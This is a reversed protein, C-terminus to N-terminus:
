ALLGVQTHTHMCIQSNMHPIYFRSASPPPHIIYKQTTRQSPLMQTVTIILLNVRSFFWWLYLSECLQIVSAEVDKSGKHKWRERRKGINSFMFMNPSYSSIYVWHHCLFLPTVCLTHWTWDLPIQGGKEKTMNEWHKSGDSWVQVPEDLTVLLSCHGQVETGWLDCLRMFACLRSRILFPHLYIYPEPRRALPSLM